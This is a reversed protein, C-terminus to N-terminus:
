LTLVTLFPYCTSVSTPILADLENSYEIYVRAETAHPSAVWDWLYAVTPRQDEENMEPWEQTVDLKPRSVPLQMVM